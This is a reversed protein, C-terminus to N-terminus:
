AKVLSFIYGWFMPGFFIIFAGAYLLTRVYINNSFFHASVVIGSALTKLLVSFHILPSRLLFGWLDGGGINAPNQARVMESTADQVMDIGGTQTEGQSPPPTTKIEHVPNSSSAREAYFEDVWQKIQAVEQAQVEIVAPNSEKERLLWMDDCHDGGSITFIPMEPSSVRRGGLRHESTVGLSREDDLEGAFGGVPENWMLWNWLRSDSENVGPENYGWKFPRCDRHSCGLMNQTWFRFHSNAWVVQEQELTGKAGRKSINLLLADLDEINKCLIEPPKEHSRAFNVNSDIFKLNYGTKLKVKLDENDNLLISDIWDIMKSLLFSCQEPLSKRINDFTTWDGRTAQVPSNSAHYAWFTGPATVATWAALNGGWSCGVMVWPANKANSNGTTDFPLSVTQAFRVFDRITQSVTLYKLNEESLSSNPISKGFFRHETAVLAGGIEKAYDSTLDVRYELANNPLHTKGPTTFVIPSGPGKWFETSYLFQQDFTGLSSDDHDILQKFFCRGSHKDYKECRHVNGANAAVAVVTLAWFPLTWLFMM